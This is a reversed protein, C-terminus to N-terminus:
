PLVPIHNVPGIRIHLNESGWGSRGPHIEPESSSPNLEFEKAWDVLSEAEESTVGGTARALKALEVLAQQDETFRQGISGAEDVLASSRLSSLAEGGAISSAAGGLFQDFRNQSVTCSAGPSIWNAIRDSLGFSAGRGINVTATAAAGPDFRFSLTSGASGGGVCVINFLSVCLGNADTGNVPDGSTFAYPTGTEDVEPDVSLFQGTPPDYYRHVVSHFESGLDCPLAGRASRSRRHRRRTGTRVLDRV